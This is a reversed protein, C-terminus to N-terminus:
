VIEIFSHCYDFDFTSDELLSKAICLPEILTFRVQGFLKSKNNLNFSSDLVDLLTSEAIFRLITKWSVLQCPKRDKTKNIKSHLLVPGEKPRRSSKKSFKRESEASANNLAEKALSSVTM